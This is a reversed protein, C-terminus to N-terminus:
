DLSQRAIAPPERGGLLWGAVLAALPLGALIVALNRVPVHALNQVGRSWGIIGIYAAATGLLAGVLALAVATAATILRRTGSGAGTAALVRLDGGTESGV